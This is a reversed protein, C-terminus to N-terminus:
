EKIFPYDEQAYVDKYLEAADPLPSDEAFKVSEDVMEKVKKGILELEKDTAFKNEKITNLVNEIPDQAKYAEVEEKTRYKQPDSMSHGKYRYTKIELLTPGNGARARESAEAIAEHVAECSMGDVPFSPMDYASGIHYLDTVNSTRKVSTGM